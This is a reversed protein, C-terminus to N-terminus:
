GSFTLMRLVGAAATGMSIVPTSGTINIYFGDVLSLDISNNSAVNTGQVSYIALEGTPDIITGVRTNIPQSNIVPIPM